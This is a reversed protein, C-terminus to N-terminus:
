NQIITLNALGTTWDLGSTWDLSQQCGMVFCLTYDDFGFTCVWTWDRTGVHNRM